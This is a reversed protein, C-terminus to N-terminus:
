PRKALWQLLKYQALTALDEQTLPSLTSRRTIRAPTIVRAERQAGPEFDRFTLIILVPLDSSAARSKKWCTMRCPTWGIATKWCLCWRCKGCGPGWATWSCANGALSKRLKADLGATLENDEIALQLAPGLLPVRSIMNRDILSIARELTRIQAEKSWTPDLGFLGRWIPHWVLYSSNVGHSEAEGGFITFGRKQAMSLAKAVLRSKGLGAEGILSVIQGKGALAESMVQALQAVEVDRGVLPDAEDSEPLHMGIRPKVAKLVAIEVPESKGKVRIPDLIQWEFLDEIEEQVNKSVLVTGPASAMMLRASLNVADGLVGYTRHAQGGYAGARMRGRSIGIQVPELFPLQQPLDRLELAASAARTANNEHALPAGFNVYLYSGKDGINLDIM